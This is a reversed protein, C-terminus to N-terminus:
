GVTCSSTVTFNMLTVRLSLLHSLAEDSGNRPLAVSSVRGIDGVAGCTAPLGRSLVVLSLSVRTRTETQGSHCRM